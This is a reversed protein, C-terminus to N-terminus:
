RLTYISASATAAVLSITSQMASKVHSVPVYVIDRAQLGVPIQKGKSIASYDIAIDLTSGDPNQRVVRAGGTKADRSTGGAMSIAQAVDLKGDEEMIYGGPRMVAGFVYVIGARPVIITSGGTVIVSSISEGNSHKSYPYSKTVPVGDVVQMVQIENGALDTFGGVQSVIDLLSRPAMLQIRGPNAVEGTVSIFSPAFQIVNITVQPNLLIHQDLFATQVRSEAEPSTLGAVSLHGILPLTLNGGEDVRYSGSLEPADYVNLDLLFGAALKLKAFDEPVSTLSSPEISGMIQSASRATTPLSTQPLSTGPGSTQNQLTQQGVCVSSLLGFACFALLAIKEKGSMHM